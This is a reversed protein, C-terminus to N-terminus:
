RSKALPFKFYFTSGKGTESAAWVKGGQAEVLQKVITLGLGSGGTNRSRSPDARYFREFLHMIDGEPIGPGTDSVSFLANGSTEVSAAVTIRGGPPTYNVANDLLNRLVQSLRDRDGFVPAMDGSVQITVSINKSKAQREIASVARAIIEATDLPELNMQLQGADAMSLTRLDSVLRSLHTTEDHLSTLRERTPEIVNDLMAEVEGQLLTLPTRLEHAIDAIMNRRSEENRELSEAMSNFAGAVQGVEDRSNIRVRYNLNGKSVERAALSLRRLPLIIQRALIAGMALALAVAAGGAWWLYSRINSLFEAEATGMAQIMEGGRGMMGQGGMMGQMRGIHELYMGFESTTARNILFSLVLVSLVAVFVFALILKFSLSHMRIMEPIEM